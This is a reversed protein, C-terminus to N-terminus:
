EFIRRVTIELGAPRATDGGDERDIYISGRVGDGELQYRLNRKTTGDFTARITLADEVATDETAESAPQSSVTTTAAREEDDAAMRYGVWVRQVRGDLQRRELDGANFCDRFHEKVEDFRIGAIEEIGVAPDIGQREAWRNWIVAASLKGAPDEVISERLFRIFNEVERTPYAVTRLPLYTTDGRLLHKPIRLLIGTTENEFFAMRLNERVRWLPSRIEM